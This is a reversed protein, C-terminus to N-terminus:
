NCQYTKLSWHRDETIKPSPQIMLHELTLNGFIDLTWFSELVQPGYSVGTAVVGHSVGLSGSERYGRHLCSQTKNEREHTVQILDDDKYSSMNMLLEVMTM